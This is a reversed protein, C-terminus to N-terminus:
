LSLGSDLGLRDHEVRHIPPDTTMSENIGADAGSPQATAGAIATGMVRHM